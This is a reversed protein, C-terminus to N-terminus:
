TKNATKEQSGNSPLNFVHSKEVLMNELEEIRKKLSLGSELAIAIDEYNGYNRIGVVMFFRERFYYAWYYTGKIAKTSFNVLSTFCNKMGMKGFSLNKFDISRFWCCTRRVWSVSHARYIPLQAGSMHLFDGDRQGIAGYFRQVWWQRQPWSGNHLEGDRAVKREIRHYDILDLIDEAEYRAHRLRGARDNLLKLNGRDTKKAEKLLRQEDVETLATKLRPIIDFELDRFKQPADFSLYAIFKPLLLAILPTLFWNLVTMGLAIASLRWMSIAM